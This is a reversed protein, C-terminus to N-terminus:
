YGIALYACGGKGTNEDGQYDNIRYTFHDVAMGDEVAVQNYWGTLM